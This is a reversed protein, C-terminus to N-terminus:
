GPPLVASLPLVRLSAVGHDLSRLLAVALVLLAQRRMHGRRRQLLPLLAGQYLVRVDRVGDRKAGLVHLSPRVDLLFSTREAARMRLVPM